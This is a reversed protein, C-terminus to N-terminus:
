KNLKYYNFYGCTVQPQWIPNALVPQLPLLYIPYPQTVSQVPLAPRITIGNVFRLQGLPQPLAVTPWGHPLAMGKRPKRKGGGVGVEILAKKSSNLFYPLLESYPHGKEKAQCLGSVKRTHAWM